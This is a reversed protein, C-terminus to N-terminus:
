PKTPRTNAPATAPPLTSRLERLQNTFEPDVSARAAREICDDLISAAEAARDLEILSKAGDLMSRLTDPHDPGLTRKRTALTEQGLALAETHRGLAHYATVLNRMSRLTDPHEDGLLRKRKVLTSERLKLSEDHRGLTAYSYALNHAADLTDPHDAGFLATRRSLV